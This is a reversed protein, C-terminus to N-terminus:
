TFKYLLIGAAVALNLSSVRGRMPLSVVADCAAIQEASLGKQESGLVLAWPARPTFTQYDTSAKASTGLLQVSYSKAWGVFDSFSTQVVPKWFLAGMSARVVGPHYLDVGGDLIFLHDVGAADMSRLIAGLNGPDQPSVLAVCNKPRLSELRTERMRVMALIGQPNDKEALSEMVQASVARPNLHAARQVLDKAFASTLLEPAYLLADVQWGSEIVEGVHYIGEVLFKGSEARAKRQRLARAQKILPNSLSTLVDM